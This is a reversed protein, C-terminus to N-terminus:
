GLLAVMGIEVIRTFIRFVCKSTFCGSRIRASVSVRGGCRCQLPADSFAWDFRGASVFAVRVAVFYGSKAIGGAAVVAVSAPVEFARKTQRDVCAVARVRGKECIVRAVQVGTLIEPGQM